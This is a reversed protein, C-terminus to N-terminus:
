KSLDPAERIYRPGCGSYRCMGTLVPPNFVPLFSNGPAVLPPGDTNNLPSLSSAYPSDGGQPSYVEAGLFGSLQYIDFFRITLRELLQKGAGKKPDVKGTGDEELGPFKGGHSCRWVIYRTGEWVFRLGPIQGGATELTATVLESAPRNSLQLTIRVDEVPPDVQTRVGTDLGIRRLVQRLKANKFDISGRNLYLPKALVPVVEVSTTAVPAIRVRYGTGDKECVLGRVKGAATRIVSRLAAEWPVDVLSVRLSVAPVEAAIEIPIGASTTLRHLAEKLPVEELQLSVRAPPAVPAEAAHGAVGVLCGILLATVASTRM